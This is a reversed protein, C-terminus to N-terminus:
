ARALPEVSTSARAQKWAAPLLSPMDIIRISQACLRPLVHGLYEIPNVGVLRCSGLITYAIAAREGGTDSGAFLYNKRTLAARVHLREVISNDIPVEGAELFRHLAERHNLLYRIATGMPSAPPEHPKHTQAWEILTAFVHESKEKRLALRAADDMERAEDEVEYLKKYAALPLAARADGRDKAKVFYRRAHTNCGCEILDPRQFSLEFINSADAVTFGSRLSLMDEPGLEGERQANKKGTSTYLYAAVNTDGV